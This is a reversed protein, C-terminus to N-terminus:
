ILEVSVKHTICKQGMDKFEHDIEHSVSRVDYERGSITVTENKRPIAVYVRPDHQVTKIVGSAGFYEVIM